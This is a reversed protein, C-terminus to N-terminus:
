EFAFGDGSKRVHMWQRRRRVDDAFNYRKGVFGKLGGVRRCKGAIQWGVM